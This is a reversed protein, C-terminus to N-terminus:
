RWLSGNEEVMERWVLSYKGRHKLCSDLKECCNNNEDEDEDSNEDEDEDSNDNNRDNGDDDEDRGNSHLTQAM